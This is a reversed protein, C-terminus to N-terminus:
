GVKKIYEAPKLISGMFLKRYYLFTDYTPIFEFAQNTM